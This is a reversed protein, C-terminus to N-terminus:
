ATLKASIMAMDERFEEATQARTGAELAHAQQQVLVDLHPRMSIQLNRLVQKMQAAVQEM